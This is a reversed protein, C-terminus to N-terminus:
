PLLATLRQNLSEITRTTSKGVGAKSLSLTLAVILFILGMAIWELGRVDVLYRQLYNYSTGTAYVCVMALQILVRWLQQVNRERCWYAFLVVAFGILLLLSSGTAPGKGTNGIAILVVSTVWALFHAHNRIWRSVADEFLLGSLLTAGVMTGAFIWETNGLGMGNPGLVGVALVISGFLFRWSSDTQRSRWFLIGCLLLCFGLSPNAMSEPSVTAPTSSIFFLASVYMGMEASKIRRALCYGFYAFLLVSTWQIPAGVTSQVVELFELQVDTLRHGPLALALLCISSSGLVIAYGERKGVIALETLLVILVLILPILYYPLFASSMGDALEFSVSLGYSRVILAVAMFALGCWPYLPWSWPTGNPSEGQGGAIAAPFLSFLTLGALTPFLFVYWAMRGVQGDISLHGLWVPYAFLLAFVAYIPGRYRWPLIARVGRLMLEILGVSFIFGLMQIRRGTAVSDLCVRDFSSSLAVLLILVLLVITRADEWVAGVRVILIASLVLLFAYGSLLKFLLWGDLNADSGNFSVHLGYLVLCASIVYFPNHNYIFRLWSTNKTLHQQTPKTVDL